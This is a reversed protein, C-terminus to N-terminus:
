GVYARVALQEPANGAKDAYLVANAQRLKSSKQSKSYIRIGARRSFFGAGRLYHGILYPGQHLNLLNIM